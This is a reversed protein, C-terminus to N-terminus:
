MGGMMMAQPNDATPGPINVQQPPMGPQGPPMAGPMPAPPMMGPQMGMMMSQQQMMMDQQAQQQMAIDPPPGPMANEQGPQTGAQQAMLVEQAQDFTMRDVEYHELLQDLFRQLQEVEGSIKESEQELLALVNPDPEPMMPDMMPGGTPAGTEFDVGMEDTLPQPTMEQMQAQVQDLKKQKEQQLKTIANFRKLHELRHLMPEDFEGLVPMLKESKPDEPSVKSNKWMAAHQDQARSIQEEPDESESQLYDNDMDHALVYDNHLAMIRPDQSLTPDQRMAMYLPMLQSLAEETKKVRSIKSMPQQSEPSIIVECDDDDLDLYEDKIYFPHKKGPTKKVELEDDEGEEIQVDETFIERSKLNNDKKQYQYNSKDGEMAKLDEPEMQLPYEQRQLAWQLKLGTGVGRSFSKLLKAFSKMTATTMQMAEFATPSNTPQASAKPDILSVSIVDDKIQSRMGFVSALKDIAPQMWQVESPSGSISIIEGTQYRAGEWQDKFEGAVMNNAVIPPKLSIELLELFSNRMVEDETQLGILVDGLGMYYYQNPVKVAGVQVMGLQKHNPLPQEGVFVGNAVYRQFDEGKNEWMQVVVNDTGELSEPPRFIPNDDRRDMGSKVKDLNTFGRRNGFEAMFQEYSMSREWIGDIAAFNRGHQHRAYPDPYYEQPPVHLWDVDNYEIIEKDQYIAMNDSEMKKLDAKSFDKLKKIKVKRVIKTYTTYLFSNGLWLAEQFADLWVYNLNHRIIPYKVINEIAPAYIEGKRTWPNVAPMLNLDYLETMATEAANYIFTSKLNPEPYEETPAARWMMVAKTLWDWHDDWSQWLGGDYGWYCNSHRADKMIDLRYELECVKDYEGRNNFVARNRKYRGKADDLSSFQRTYKTKKAMTTLLFLSSVVNM